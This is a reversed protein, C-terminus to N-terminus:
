LCRVAALVELINEDPTGADMNICCIGINELPGAATLLGEIDRRIIDPTLQLMRIPSLRLNLFANPFNQRCQAVDSEWGVDYFTSPVQSYADAFQELNNGCHHIGYPQLNEALYREYPLLFEEYHKPSIMQVSCNSHLYIQPDVNLISRNTAVACTGTRARMYQAVDVHTRAIINFLHHVLAPKEYMDMYLQQGRIHLATNLIGDTDFDGVVNGFEKELSDMDAILQDMPWTHRFDPVDLAWIQDESLRQPETWPAENAAFRIKVGFLAPLVFGGAVHMSGIVPRPQPDEAGLHFREYMVWRMLLDNQIRTERDFYFQETFLVQYYHNWWNPNFIFNVPLEM